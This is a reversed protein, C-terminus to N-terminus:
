PQGLFRLVAAALEVCSSRRAESQFCVERLCREDRRRPPRQCTLWSNEFALSRRSSPFELFKLLLVMKDMSGSIFQPESQQAEICNVAASHGALAFIPNKTRMDWVQM